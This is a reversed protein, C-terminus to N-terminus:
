RMSVRAEKCAEAAHREYIRKRRQEKQSLMETTFTSKLNLKGHLVNEHYTAIGDLLEGYSAAVRYDSSNSAGYYPRDKPRKSTASKHGAETNQSDYKHLVERVKDVEM